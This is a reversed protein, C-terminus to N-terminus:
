NDYNGGKSTYSSFRETDIGSTNSTGLLLVEKKPRNEYKKSDNESESKLPNQRNVTTWPRQDLQRTQIQQKMQHIEDEKSSINLKLKRIESEFQINAEDKARVRIELNEIAGQLSKVVTTHNDQITELNLKHTSIVTKLSETEMFNQSKISQLSTQLNKNELQLEKIKKQLQELIDNNPTDKKLNTEINTEIKQLMPLMKKEWEIGSTQLM